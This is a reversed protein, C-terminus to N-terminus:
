TGSYGPLAVRSFIAARTACPVCFNKHVWFPPTLIEGCLECLVCLIFQL